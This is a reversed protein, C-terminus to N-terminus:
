RQWIEVTRLFSDYSTDIGYPRVQIQVSGIGRGATYVVRASGEADTAMVEGTQVPGVYSDGPYPLMVGDCACEFLLPRSTLPEGRNNRLILRVVSQSVGDANITDPAATLEVLIGTGSPGVLDPNNTRDLKCGWSTLLTGAVAVALAAGVGSNRMAMLM